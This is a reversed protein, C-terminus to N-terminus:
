QPSQRRCAAKNRATRSETPASTMGVKVYLVIIVGFTPGGFLPIVYPASCSKFEIALGNVGFMGQSLNIPMM